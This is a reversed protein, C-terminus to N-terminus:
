KILREDDACFHIKENTKSSQINEGEEESSSSVDKKQGVHETKKEEEVKSTPKPKKIIQLIELLHFAPEVGAFLALAGIMAQIIKFPERPQGGPVVDNSLM